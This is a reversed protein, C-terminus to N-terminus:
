AAEQHASDQQMRQQLRQQWVTPAYYDSVSGVEGPFVQGEYNIYDVQARSSLPVRSDVHEALRGLRSHTGADLVQQVSNLRHQAGVVNGAKLSEQAMLVNSDIEAKHKGLNRSYKRKGAEEFVNATRLKGEQYVASGLLAVAGVAGKIGRGGFKLFERSYRSFREGAGRFALTSALSLAGISAVAVREGPEIDVDFASVEAKTAQIHTPSQLEPNKIKIGPFM